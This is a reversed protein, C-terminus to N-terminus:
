AATLEARMCFLCVLAPPNLLGRTQYPTSGDLEALEPNHFTSASYPLTDEINYLPPPTKPRSYDPFSAPDVNAYSQTHAPYMMYAYRIPRRRHPSPPPHAALTKHQVVPATSRCRLLACIAHHQPKPLPPANVRVHFCPVCANARVSKTHIHLHPSPIM